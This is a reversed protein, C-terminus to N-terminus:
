TSENGGCRDGDSDQQIANNIKLWAVKGLTKAQWYFM